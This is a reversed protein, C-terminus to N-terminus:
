KECRKRMQEMFLKREEESMGMLKEKLGPPPGFRRRPKRFGGGRFSGFLIRTLLVLAVAQWFSIQKVDFLEPLTYNWLFRVVFGMVAVVAAGILIFILVRVPIEEKFYRRKDM